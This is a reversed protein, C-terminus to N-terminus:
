ALFAPLRTGGAFFADGDREVKVTIRQGDNPASALVSAPVTLFDYGFGKDFPVAIVLSLARSKAASANFSYVGSGEDVGVAVQVLDQNGIANIDYGMEIDPYAVRYGNSILFGTLAYVAADEKASMARRRKARAPDEGLALWFFDVGLLDALKRMVGQRPTSVGSFWKAAAQQSVGIRDAIYSQRGHNPDPVASNLNCAEVLRDRFTSM